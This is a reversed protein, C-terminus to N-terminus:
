HATPPWRSPPGGGPAAFEHMIIAQMRDDEDAQDIATTEADGVAAGSM